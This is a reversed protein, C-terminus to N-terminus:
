EREGGEEVGRCLEHAVALMAWRGVYGKFHSRDYAQDMLTSSMTFTDIVPVGHRRMVYYAISNFLILNPDTRFDAMQVVGQPFVLGMTTAWWVRTGTRKAASLQKALHKVQMLYRAPTWPSRITRSRVTRTSKHSLPWQGFNVVIHSCNHLFDPELPQGWVNHKFIYSARQLVAKDPTGITANLLFTPDLFSNYVHRLHSDGFFCVSPLADKCAPLRAETAFSCGYPQWRLISDDLSSPAPNIVDDAHCLAFGVPCTRSLNAALDPRVLWRGPMDATKCLPCAPGVCGPRRSGLDVHGVQLTTSGLFTDELMPSVHDFTFQDYLQLLEITYNGAITVTYPAVAVRSSCYSVPLVMAEPGTIRARYVRTTAARASRHTDVFIVFGTAARTPTFCLTVRVGATSNKHPLELRTCGDGATNHYLAANCATNTDRGPRFQAPITTPTQLTKSSCLLPQQLVGVLVLVCALSSTCVGRM